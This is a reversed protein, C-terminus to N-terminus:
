RFRYEPNARDFDLDSPQFSFDIDAFRYAEVLTAADLEQETAAADNVPWEFHWTEVPVNWERDIRTISKRYKPSEAHSKYRTTFELCPRGQVFVNENLECSAVSRRELEEHHSRSMIDILGLLGAATVPYRSDRMALSGTPVLSFAPLRAKWGGDHALLRGNNTGEVYLVEQGVDGTLWLLYVSFPQHRCKM